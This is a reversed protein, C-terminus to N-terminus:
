FPLADSARGYCIPLDGQRRAAIQYPVVVDNAEEFAHVMDLVQRKYVDPRDLFDPGDELLAILERTRHATTDRDRICM